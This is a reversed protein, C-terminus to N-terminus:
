QLHHHCCLPNLPQVNKFIRTHLLQEHELNICSQNQVELQPAKRLLSSTLSSLESIGISDDQKQSSSSITPIVM